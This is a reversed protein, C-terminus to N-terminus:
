GEDLVPAKGEFVVVGVDKVKTASEIEIEFRPLRDRRSFEARSRVSVQIRVKVVQDDLDVFRLELM